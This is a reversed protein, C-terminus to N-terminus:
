LSALVAWISAVTACLLGVGVMLLELRAGHVAEAVEGSPPLGLGVAFEGNTIVPVGAEQSRRRSEAKFSEWEQLDYPQANLREIETQKWAEEGRRFARIRENERHTSTVKVYAQVLGWVPLGLGLVYLGVIWGATSSDM